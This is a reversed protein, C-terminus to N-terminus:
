VKSYGKRLNQTCRLTTSNEMVTEKEKTTENTNLQIKRSRRQVTVGSYKKYREKM